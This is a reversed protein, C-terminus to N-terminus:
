SENNDEDQYTVIFRCDCHECEYLDGGEVETLTSSLDRTCTWWDDKIDAKQLHTYKCKCSPCYYNPESM